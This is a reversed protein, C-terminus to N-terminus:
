GGVRHHVLREVVKGNRIHSEIIEDVDDYGVNKYWVGEPYIIVVPCLEGHPETEHCVGLCGTRSTRVAGEKREAKLKDKFADLVDEGGMPKCRKSLCVFIHYKYPKM